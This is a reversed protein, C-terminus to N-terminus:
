PQPRRRPPHTRGGRAALVAHGGRWRVLPAAPRSPHRLARRRSNLAHRGGAFPDTTVGPVSPVRRRLRIRSIGPNNRRGARWGALYVLWGAAVPLGLSIVRYCVVAATASGSLAGAHTLALVIAVDTAGIGGPLFSFSSASMGALYGCTIAGLGAHDVGVAHCSALLCGLDTFWNVAAFATGALWDARGVRMARLGDAFRQVADDAGAGPRGRLRAWWRLVASTGRTVLGIARERWRVLLVTLLVLGGTGAVATMSIGAGFAAFVGLLAFTVGSLLGSSMLTFAIAPGSAGCAGLRRATYGISLATGGPLTANLANAALTVATMRRLPLAAGAAALMRRQLLAFSTLSAAEVALAASLWAVSEPRV